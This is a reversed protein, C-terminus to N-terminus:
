TPYYNKAERERVRESKQKVLNTRKEGTLNQGKLNTQLLFSQFSWVFHYYQNWENVNQLEMSFFLSSTKATPSELHVYITYM